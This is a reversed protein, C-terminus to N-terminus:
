QEVSARFNITRIRVTATRFRAIAVGSNSRQMMTSSSSSIRTAARSASRPSNRSSIVTDDGSRAIAAVAPRWGSTMRSSALKARPAVSARSPSANSSRSSVLSGSAITTIIVACAPTFTATSAIFRPAVSKTDL